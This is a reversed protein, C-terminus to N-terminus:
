EGSPRWYMELIGDTQAGTCYNFLEAADPQEDLVDPIRMALLTNVLMGQAMFKTAEGPGMGADDRAMRYIRLFCERSSPGFTPDHGMTFLHMLVLLIGRDAVLQAYVKGLIAQKEPATEDGDFEAIAAGFGAAVRDAARKAVEVFLQEKSGFMRVVYAQSIGAQKAVADTTGGAYGREAFVVSAAQLIQERRDESSLRTPANASNKAMDM